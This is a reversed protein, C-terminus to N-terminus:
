LSEEVVLTEDLWKALLSNHQVVVHITDDDVVATSQLENANSCDSLFQVVDDDFKFNFKKILFMVKEINNETVEVIWLKSSKHFHPYPTDTNGMSDKLAKIRDIIQPAFKCKFALKRNGIYRVERPIEISQYPHQRYTPNQCIAIVEEAPVLLEPDTFQQPREDKFLRAYKTIIKRAIFSQKTSFRGGNRTRDALDQLFKRDAPSTVPNVYNSRGWRGRQSAHGVSTKVITELEELLDEITIM